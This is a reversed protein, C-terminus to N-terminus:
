QVYLIWDSDTILETTQILESVYELDLSVCM